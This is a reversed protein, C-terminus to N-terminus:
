ENIYNHITKECVGYKEALTEITCGGHRYDATILRRRTNKLFESPKPVRIRRGGAAECLKFTNGAGIAAAIATLQGPIDGPELETLLDNDTM